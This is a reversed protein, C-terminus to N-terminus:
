LKLRSTAALNIVKNKEFTKPLGHKREYKCQKRRKLWFKFDEFILLLEALFGAISKM